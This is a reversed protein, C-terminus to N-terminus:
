SLIEEMNESFNKYWSFGQDNVIHLEVPADINKLIKIYIQDNLNTDNELILIDIDSSATIKGSLVSGFVFVRAYKDIAKVMRYVDSCVSRYNKLYEWKKLEFNISM